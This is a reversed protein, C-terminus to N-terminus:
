QRQLPLKNITNLPLMGMTSIPPTPEIGVLYDIIYILPSKHHTRGRHHGTPFHSSCISVTAPTYRLFIPQTLSVWIHIM